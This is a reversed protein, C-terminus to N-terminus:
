VGHSTPPKMSVLSQMLANKLNIIQKYQSKTIVHHNNDKLMKLYKKKVEDVCGCSAPHINHM